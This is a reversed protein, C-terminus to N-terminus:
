KQVDRVYYSPVRRADAEAPRLLEFGEVTRVPASATTYRVMMLQHVGRRFGLAELETGLEQQYGRVGLYVPRPSEGQLVTFVHGLITGVQASCGPAFMADLRHMRRSTQVRVYASPTGETAVYWGRTSRGELDVDWEHSTLAEANQVDRPTTQLYLQHIEWVDSTGQVRVSRSMEGAPATALTYVLENGFASFGVRRLSATLLSDMESRAMIRRAGFWGAQGIAHELLALALPDDACVPERSLLYQLHWREDSGQRHCQLAGLLEGRETSSAVFLPQSSNDGALLRRMVLQSTRPADVESEPHHLEYRCGLRSIAASDLLRYLRVHLDTRPAANAVWRDEAPEPAHLDPVDDAFTSVREADPLLKTVM